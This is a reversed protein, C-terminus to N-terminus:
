SSFLCPGDRFAVIPVLGVDGLRVSIIQSCNAIFTGYMPSTCDTEYKLPATPCTSPQGFTLAGLDQQSSPFPRDLYGTNSFRM